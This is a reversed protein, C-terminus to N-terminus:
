IINWHWTGHLILTVAVFAEMVLSGAAPLAPPLWDLISYATMADRTAEFDLLKMIVGAAFLLGFAAAVGRSAGTILRYRTRTM